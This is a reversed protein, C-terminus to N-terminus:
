TSCREVCPDIRRDQALSHGTPNRHNGLGSKSVLSNLEKMVKPDLSVDGLRYMRGLYGYKPTGLRHYPLLEYRVGPISSLFSLIAGVEQLSDNVGPVIPTRALIPLDPFEKRLNVLNELIRGNHKGTFRVHKDPDIIKIDYIISNLSRCAESLVSWSCDGCTEMSTDIRRRKAERLLAIAFEPQFMPEGGSLTIGGGSRAYFLHDKEVTDLVEKVSRKEGYVILAGSPCAKACELCLACRESEMRMLGQDDISRANRQCATVCIDCKDPALCKGSNFALETEKRQSEPNSCWQCRLPCGKLFVLTRIGAGDHVSYRQLNL